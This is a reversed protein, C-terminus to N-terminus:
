QYLPSGRETQHIKLFSGTGMVPNPEGGQGPSGNLGNKKEFQFKGCFLMSNAQM